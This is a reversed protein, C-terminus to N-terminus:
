REPAALRLKRDLVRLANDVDLAGQLELEHRRAAARRSALAFKAMFRSAAPHFLSAKALDRVIDEVGESMYRELNFDKEHM